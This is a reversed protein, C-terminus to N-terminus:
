QAPVLVMLLVYGALETATYAANTAKEAGGPEFMRLGANQLTPVANPTIQVYSGGLNESFVGINATPIGLIHDYSSQPDLIGGPNTTPEFPAMNLLDGILNVGYNGSFVAKFILGKSNNYEVEAQYSLQVAM